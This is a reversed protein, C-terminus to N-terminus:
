FLGIGNRVNEDLENYKASATLINSSDERMLKKYNEREDRSKNFAEICKSKATINSMTDPTIEGCMLSGAANEIAGAHKSAVADLNQIKQM